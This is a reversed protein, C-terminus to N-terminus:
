CKSEWRNCWFDKLSYIPIGVYDWIYCHKKRKCSECSRNELAELKNKFLLREVDLAEDKELIIDQIVELEEIAENILKKYNNESVYTDDFINDNNLIDLAKM